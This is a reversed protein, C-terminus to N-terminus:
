KKLSYIKLGKGKTKTLFVVVYNREDLVGIYMLRKIDAQSRMFTQIQSAIPKDLTEMPLLEVSESYSYERHRLAKGKSVDFCTQYVNVYSSEIVYEKGLNGSKLSVGSESFMLKVGKDDCVGVSEWILEGEESYRKLIYYKDGSKNKALALFLLSKSARDYFIANRGKNRYNNFQMIEYGAVKMNVAFTKVVSGQNNVIAVVNVCTDIGKKKDYRDYGLAYYHYWENSAYYDWM